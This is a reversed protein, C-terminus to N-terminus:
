GRFQRDIEDQRAQRRAANEEEDPTPPLTIPISFQVRSVNESATSHDAAGGIEVSMVKLGAKAGGTTERGVTVAVDFAIDRVHRYTYNDSGPHYVNSGSQASPPNILVSKSAYKEQLEITADAISSITESIFDKLDM